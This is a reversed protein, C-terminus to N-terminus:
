ISLIRYLTERLKELFSGLSRLSGTELLELSESTESVQFDYWGSAPEIVLRHGSMQEPTSAGYDGQIRM